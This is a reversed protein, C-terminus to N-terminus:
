CRAAARPRASCPLATSSTKLAPRSSTTACGLKWITACPFRGRKAARRRLACCASSATTRFIEWGCGPWPTLKLSRNGAVCDMVLQIAAEHDRLIDILRSPEIDTSSRSILDEIFGKAVLAETTGRDLDYLRELIGTEVSIQRVLKTTFNKLAATGSAELLAKSALWSEYLPTMAALDIARDQDTLPEIPHWKYDIM